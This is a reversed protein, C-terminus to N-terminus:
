IRTTDHPPIRAAHAQHPPQAPHPPLVWCGRDAFEAEVIDADGSPIEKALLAFAKLDGLDAEPGRPNMMAHTRDPKTFQQDFQHHHPRRFAGRESTLNDLVVGHLAPDRFGADLKLLRAQEGIAARPPEIVGAVM